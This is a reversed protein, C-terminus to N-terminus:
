IERAQKWLYEFYNRYSETLEKSEIVIITLKSIFLWFSVKNGYIYTATPSRYGKPLVKLKVLKHHLPKVDETIIYRSKIKHKEREKYLREYFIPDLNKCEEQHSGIAIIEKKLKLTERISQLFVTKMGEKGEYVEIVPKQEIPLYINKLEM